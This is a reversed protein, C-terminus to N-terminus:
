PSNISYRITLKPRLDPTAVVEKTHFRKLGSIYGSVPTLKWGRNPEGASMQQVGSTVDFTLWAPDWGVTFQADPLPEYDTGSGGAGAVAWPQGPRSQQWTASDEAWERLLRHVAYTMNYPTFKYVELTAAQITAGDPIPGGESNFIAFRVLGAYRSYQDPMSDASGFVLTSHHSSLYTDRTSSYGNLGNQLTLEGGTTSGSELVTVTVPSSTRQADRTDFAVATLTHSGPPANLWAFMYPGPATVQGLKLTGAFFEVRAIGDDADTADASIDIAQGAAFTAGNV